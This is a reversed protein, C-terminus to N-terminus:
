EPTIEIVPLKGHKEKEKERGERERERERKGRYLLSLLLITRPMLQGLSLSIERRRSTILSANRPFQSFFTAKLCVLTVLILHEAYIYSSASDRPSNGGLLFIRESLALSIIEM